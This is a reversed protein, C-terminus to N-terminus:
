GHIEWARKVLADMEEPISNAVHQAVLKIWLWGLPGKVVITNTIKIGDQTEEMYHTDSMQAGFFTTCDTFQKGPTVQTLVIKVAKMGKPKLMFYNGEEFPGEMSCYELDDHWEPWCSVDTWLRWIAEKTVGAYTKSYTKTWMPDEM